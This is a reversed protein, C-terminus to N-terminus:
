YSVNPPAAGRPRGFSACLMRYRALVALILAGRVLWFRGLGMISQGWLGRRRRTRRVAGAAGFSLM